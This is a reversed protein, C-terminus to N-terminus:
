REKKKRFDLPTIMGGPNGLGSALLERATIKDSTKSEKKRQIKLEKKLKKLAVQSQRLNAYSDFEKKEEQTKARAAYAVGAKAGIRAMMIGLVVEGAKENIMNAVTYAGFVVASEIALSLGAKVGAKVKEKRDKSTTKTLKDITEQLFRSDSMYNLKAKLGYEKTAEKVEAELKEVDKVDINKMSAFEAAQKRIIKERDSKQMGVSNDVTSGLYKKLLAASSSKDKSKTNNPSSSGVTLSM